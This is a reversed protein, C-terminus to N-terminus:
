NLTNPVDTGKGYKRSGGGCDNDQVPKINGSSKPRNKPKKVPNGNEAKKHNNLAPQVFAALAM